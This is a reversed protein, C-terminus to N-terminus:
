DERRMQRFQDIECLLDLRERMRLQLDVVRKEIVVLLAHIGRRDIPYEVFQLFPKHRQNMVDKGGLLRVVRFKHSFVIDVRLPFHLFQQEGVDPEVPRLSRDALRLM